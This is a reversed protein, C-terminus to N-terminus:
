KTSIKNLQKMCIAYYISQIQPILELEYTTYFRDQEIWASWEGNINKIIFDGANNFVERLVYESDENKIFGFDILRAESIEQTEHIKIEPKNGFDAPNEIGIVKKNWFMLIYKSNKTIKEANSILTKLEPNQLEIDKSQDFLTTRCGVGKKVWSIAVMSDSYIYLDDAIHEIGRAIALYEAINNTMVGVRENFLERNDALNVGRIQAQGTIPSRACDVAIGIKPVAKSDFPVFPKSM